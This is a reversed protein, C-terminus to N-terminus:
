SRRPLMAAIESCGRKQQVRSCSLCVDGHTWGARGWGAACSQELWYEMQQWHRLGDASHPVSTEVSSAAVAPVRAGGHTHSM